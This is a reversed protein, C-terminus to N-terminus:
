KTGCGEYQGIMPETANSSIAMPVAEQILPTAAPGHTVPAPKATSTSM